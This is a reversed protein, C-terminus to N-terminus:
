SRHHFSHIQPAAARKPRNNGRRPRNISWRLLFIPFSYVSREMVASRLIKIRSGKVFKRDIEGFSYGISKIARLLSEIQLRLLSRTRHSFFKELRLTAPRPFIRPHQRTVLVNGERERKKKRKPHFLLIPKVFIVAKGASM